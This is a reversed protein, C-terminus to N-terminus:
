KENKFIYKQLGIYIFFILLLLLVVYLIIWWKSRQNHNHFSQLSSSESQTSQTYTNLKKATEFPNLLADEESDDFDYNNM